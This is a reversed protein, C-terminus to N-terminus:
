PNAEPWRERKVKMIREKAEEVSIYAFELKCDKCWYYREPPDKAALAAMSQIKTKQEFALDCNPCHAKIKYPQGEAFAGVKSWQWRFVIEGFIGKTYSWYTSSFRRRVGIFCAYSCVSVLVIILIWYWWRPISLDTGLFTITANWAICLGDIIKHFAWPVTGERGWWAILAALIPLILSIVVTKWWSKWWLMATEKWGM